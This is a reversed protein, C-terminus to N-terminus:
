GRILVPEGVKEVIVPALRDDIVRRAAAEKGGGLAEKGQKALEPLSIKCARLFADQAIEPLLSFAASADTVQKTTKGKGLSYGPVPNGATLRSKIEDRISDHLRGILACQDELHALQEPSIATLSQQFTQVAEVPLTEVLSNCTEACHSTGFAPCYQCGQTTPNRKASPNQCREATITLEQMADRLSNSDFFVPEVAGSRGVIWGWIQGPGYHLHDKWAGVCYVRIQANDVADDYGAFGSKWDIVHIIGAGDRIILDPHGTWAGWRMEGECQLLECDAITIRSAKEFRALLACAIESEEPHDHTLTELLRSEKKVISAIIAHVTTGRKAADSEPPKPLGQEANLSGPCLLYRQASSARLTM